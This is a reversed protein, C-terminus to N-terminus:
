QGARRSLGRSGLLSRRRSRPRRGHLPSRPLARAAFGTSPTMPIAPVAALDLDALPASHASARPSVGRAAPGFVLQRLFHARGIGGDGVTAVAALAIGALVVPLAVRPLRARTDGRGPVTVRTRRSEM